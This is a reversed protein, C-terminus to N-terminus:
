NNCFAEPALWAVTHVFQCLMLDYL